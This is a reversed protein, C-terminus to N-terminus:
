SAVTNLYARSAAATVDKLPVGREAALRRCDEYEPVFNVRRGRLSAVKIRVAGYDTQVQVIERDLTRRRAATYRLGITTTEAFVLSTLGDLHAPECVVTLVFAPRNKKMLAPVAYVDLAGASLAREQFYGWVQPSMDDIAAEIVMVEGADGSTGVLGEEALTLRLVNASGPTDRTGAGYGARVTSMLPRPGYSEALVTLLAAGTPTTLEGEVENSFTPVGRLLHEVAPGPVPYIGHRCELTGRGVNVPTCVVRVPMLEEMLIMCGVIDVISDVAGVEHFHVEEPPQNHVTGEAQALRFFAGVSKERVWPSLSSSEIMTRIEAFSRHHHHHHHAGHSAGHHGPPDPNEDLIVDFKTAQIGARMERRDSLRYGRLSLCALRERLFGLGGGLDLLAGITMDGSIGSSADIYLIQSKEV